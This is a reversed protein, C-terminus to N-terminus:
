NQPSAQSRPSRESWPCDNLEPSGLYLFKGFLSSKMTQELGVTKQLSMRGEGERETSDALKGTWWDWLCCLCVLSADMKLIGIPVSPPNWSCDPWRPSSTPVLPCDSQTQVMREHLIMPRPWGSGLPVSQGRLNGLGTASLRTCPLWCCTNSLCFWSWLRSFLFRHPFVLLVPSQAGGPPEWKGGNM